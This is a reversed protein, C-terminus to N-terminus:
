GDNEGAKLEQSAEHILAVMGAVDNPYIADTLRLILNNAFDDIAKNYGYYSAVILKPAEIMLSELRLRKLEELWNALQEHEEACDLCMKKNDVTEFFTVKIRNQKAVERAHEIAEDINM